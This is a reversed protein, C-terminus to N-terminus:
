YLSLLIYKTKNSGPTYKFRYQIEVICTEIEDHSMLKHYAFKWVSSLKEFNSNIQLLGTELLNNLFNCTRINYLLTRIYDM